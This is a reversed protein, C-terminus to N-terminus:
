PGLHSERLKLTSLIAPLVGDADDLPFVGTVKLQRLGADPLFIKGVRYRNLEQVVQALPQGDFILKRRQWAQLEQLNAPEARAEGYELKEGAKFRIEGVFAGDESCVAVAHEQVVTGM